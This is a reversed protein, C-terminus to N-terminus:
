PARGAACLLWVAWVVYVLCAPCGVYSLVFPITRSGVVIPWHHILRFVHFIGVLLFISGSVILYLRLIM